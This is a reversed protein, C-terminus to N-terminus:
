LYLGVYIRFILIIKTAYNVDNRIENQDVLMNIEIEQLGVLM